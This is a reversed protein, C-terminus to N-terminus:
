FPKPAKVFCHNFPKVPTTKSNQDVVERVTHCRLGGEDRPFEFAYTRKIGDPGKASLEQGTLDEFKMADAKVSARVSAIASSRKESFFPNPSEITRSTEHIFGAGAAAIGAVGTALGVVLTADILANEIFAPDKVKNFIKKV